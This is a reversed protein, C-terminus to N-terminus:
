FRARGIPTPGPEQAPRRFPEGIMFLLGLSDENQLGEVGTILREEGAAPHELYTGFLGDWWSFIQGYNRSHDAVDASHHIRHLSPTIVVARLIRELGTPLSANAHEFFNLVMSALGGAFVAEAPPALLAVIGLYVAETSVVELPHFRAGTSVDFDPDSHHVEHVRWLVGFRHFTRHIWYQALDLILITAVWRLALPLWARNLVGFRSGSVSAAVVVPSLRLVAAVTGLSLALLAGHRWWRRGAPWFLQRAERVSEWVAVALFSSVFLGWYITSTHKTWSM